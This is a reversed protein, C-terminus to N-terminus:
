TTDDILVRTTSLLLGLAMYLGYTFSIGEKIGLPFADLVQQGALCSLRSGSCFVVPQEHISHEVAVTRADGPPVQRGTEAVKADHVGTVRAPAVAAYPLPHELGQCLVRVVFVGHNVGGDHAGVLM